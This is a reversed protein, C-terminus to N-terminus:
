NQILTSLIQIKIADMEPVFMGATKSNLMKTSVTQKLAIQIVMLNLQAFNIVNEGLRSPRDVMLIGILMRLPKARTRQRIASKLISMELWISVIEQARTLEIGLTISPKMAFMAGSFHVKWEGQIGWRHQPKVNVPEASSSTIMANQQMMQDSLFLVVKISLIEMFLTTKKRTIQQLVVGTQLSQVNVHNLMWTTRMILFRIKQISIRGLPMTLTPRFNM